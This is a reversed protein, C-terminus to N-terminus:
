VTAGMKPARQYAIVMAGDGKEFLVRELLAAAEHPNGRVCAEYAWTMLQWRYPGATPDRDDRTALEAELDDTPIRDIYECVDVEVDVRCSRYRRSM